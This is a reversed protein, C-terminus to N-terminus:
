WGTASIIAADIRALMAEQAALRRDTSPYGALERCRQLEAAVDDRAEILCALLDPAAAILSANAGPAVSITSLGAMFLPVLSRCEDPTLGSILLTRDDQMRLLIHPVGVIHSAEDAPLDGISIVEGSLTLLPQTHSM